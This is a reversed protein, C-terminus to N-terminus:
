DPEIIRAHCITGPWLGGHGRIGTTFIGEISIRRGSDRESVDGEVWLGIETREQPGDDLHPYIASHEFKAFYYGDVVVAKGEYASHDNILSAISVQKPAVPEKGCGYKAFIASPDHYRTPPDNGRECSALLPLVLLFPTCRM